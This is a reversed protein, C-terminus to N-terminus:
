KKVKEVDSGYAVGFPVVVRASPEPLVYNQITANALKGNPVIVVENDWTRIRTSRLGVDIVSGFTGDETQITDGVKISRDVILSIGGFINGLTTQLAFAVAVGAIGLSALLPGIEIGWADLVLLFAVVFFLLNVSRQLLSIVHDDVKSMTNQAWRKGWQELLINIVGVVIYAVLVFILSVLIKDSINVWGQSLKCAILGLRIGLFLLIFSIPRNIKAIILEDLKTKTRSALALVIKETIWVSLRSIVFFAAFIMAGAVYRNGFYQVVQEVMLNIDAM